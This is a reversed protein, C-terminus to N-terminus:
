LFSLAFSIMRSPLTPTGAQARWNSERSLVLDGTFRDSGLDSFYLSATKAPQPHRTGWGPEALTPFCSGLCWRNLHDWVKDQACGIDNQVFPDGFTEPAGFLNARQPLNPPPLHLIQKEAAHGM